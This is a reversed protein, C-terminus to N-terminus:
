NLEMVIEGEWGEELAIVGTYMGVRGANYLHGVSWGKM